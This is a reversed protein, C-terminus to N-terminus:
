GEGSSFTQLGQLIFDMSELSIQSSSSVRLWRPIDTMPVDSDKVKEKGGALGRRMQNLHKLTIANEIGIDIVDENSLDFVFHDCTQTYLLIHGLGSRYHLVDAYSHRPLALKTGVRQGHGMLHIHGEESITGHNKKKPLLTYTLMCHLLHYDTAM